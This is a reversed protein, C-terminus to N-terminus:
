GSSSQDLSEVLSERWLALEDWGHLWVVMWMGLLYALPALVGQEPGFTGGHYKEFNPKPIVSVVKCSIPIGSTSRGLVHGMMINWGFHWGIGLWLSGGAVMVNLAAAVGGLFLNLLSVYSTSGPSYLHLLAFLTSQLIISTVIAFTVAASTDDFLWGKSAVLVGRAGLIFMWGRLMVEENIAVGIHFIVDWTFNILFLEDPVVTEFYGIIAIWGFLLEMAFLILIIFSGIGFGCILDSLITTTAASSSSTTITTTTGLGLDNFTVLSSFSCLIYTSFLSGMAAGIRQSAHRIRTSGRAHNLYYPQANNKATHKNEGTHQQQQKTYDNNYNAIAKSTKKRKKRSFITTADNKKIGEEIINGKTAIIKEEEAHHYQKCQELVVLWDNSLNEVAKPSPWVLSPDNSENEQELWADDDDDNSSCYRQYHPVVAGPLRCAIWRSPILLLLHFFHGYTADLFVFLCWQVFYATGSDSNNASTDSSSTPYLFYYSLGTLQLPVIISLSWEFLSPM